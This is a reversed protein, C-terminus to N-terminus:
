GQIINWLNGDVQRRTVAKLIALELKNRLLAYDKRQRLAWLIFGIKNMLRLKSTPGPVKLTM